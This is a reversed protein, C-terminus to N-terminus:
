FVFEVSGRIERPREPNVSLPSSGKYYKEDTINQGTLRFIWDRGSDDQKLNYKLGIDFRNYADLDYTNADDIPRDGEYFWGAQISLGNLAGELFAYEVGVSLALEPVGAPTNGVMDPDDNQVFEASLYTASGTISLHDGIIGAVAIEAGEHRQEGRLVLTNTLLDDFPANVRDITFLAASTLLQGGLAEWKVGVEFQEGLIPDLKEGANAYSPGVPSNPEFSESYSGYISINPSPLYVVGARPTLNDADLAYYVRGTPDTLNAEFKDHRAGLLVKWKEGISIIDHLYVGSRDEEGGNKQPRTVIRPDEIIFPNFINAVFTVNRTTENSDVEIDTQDAGFLIQHTVSGSSFNGILDVYYTTYDRRNVRRRARVLVNGDADPETRIQNDYRDREFDQLSVGTRVSFADSFEHNLEAYLNSVESDYRSWPQNYILEHSQSSFDGTMNVLGIDQPRDDTISDWNVRLSTQTSIDWDIAFAAISRETEFDSGDVYERFSNTKESVANIRYRVNGSESLPGGHDLHVHRLDYSGVTAKLSTSWESSPRKPIMNILGGPALAGYLVSAPGKLVEVRELVEVPPASLHFFSRGDRLYNTTNSLNFGRIQYSSYAGLFNNAKQVSSDNQLIQDFRFAQQDAMLDANIVFVSQPTELIPLDLRTASTSNKEYYTQQGMVVLAEESQATQGGGDADKDATQSVAESSVAFAVVVFMWAKMYATSM